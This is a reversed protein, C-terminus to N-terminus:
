NNSNIQFWEKMSRASSHDFSIKKALKQQARYISKTIMRHSIEENEKIGMKQMLLIIREGGFAMFLPEDLANLVFILSKKLTNFLAIEKEALPYHELMIIEKNTIQSTNIQQALLITQSINQSQLFSEGIRKTEPFWAFLLAEPYQRLLPIIGKLKADNHMWVIDKVFSAADPKKQLFSLLGM